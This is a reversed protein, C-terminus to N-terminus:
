RRGARRDGKEKEAKEPAAPKPNKLAAIEGATLMRWEGPRMGELRLPGIRTRRLQKVEYDLSYFM